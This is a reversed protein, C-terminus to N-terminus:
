THSYESLYSDIAHQIGTHIDNESRGSKLLRGITLTRIKNGVEELHPTITNLRDIAEHRLSPNLGVGGYERFFNHTVWNRQKLAGEIDTVLEPPLSLTKSAKRVLTGLTETFRADMLERVETGWVGKELILTAAFLSVISYELAQAQFCAMGLAAALQAAESEESM